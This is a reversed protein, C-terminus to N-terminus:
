ASGLKREVKEFTNWQATIALGDAYLFRKGLRPRKETKEM